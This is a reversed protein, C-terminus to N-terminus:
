LTEVKLSKSEPWHTVRDFFVNLFAVEHDRKHYTPMPLAELRVFDSSAFARDPDDLVRLARLAADGRGRAATILLGTDVFTLM